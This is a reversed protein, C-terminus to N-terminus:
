DSQAFQLRANGFLSKKYFHVRVRQDHNGIGLRHCVSKEIRQGLLQMNWQM